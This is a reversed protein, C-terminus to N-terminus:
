LFLSEIDEDLDFISPKKETTWLEKKGTTRLAKKETTRLFDDDSDDDFSKSVELNEDGKSEDEERHM